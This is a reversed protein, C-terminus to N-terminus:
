LIEEKLSNRFEKPTVGYSAKFMKTFYSADTFGTEDAIDIVTKGTNELLSRAAKLRYAIIYQHLTIGAKKKLMQSVYFPHYGFIAGIETNSLEEGCHERIYEDMAEVMRTPLANEDTIEAVRLLELKLLASVTARYDGLASVFLNAMRLFADKEAAMDEIYLPRDFPAADETRRIVAGEPLPLSYASLRDAPAGEEYTLDFNLVVARFYKSKLKYVTGAPLYLFNGPTLHKKKESEIEFALDGSLSFFCRADPATRFDGATDTELLSARRVYPNLRDLDM